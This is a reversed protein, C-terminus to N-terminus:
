NLIGLREDRSWREWSVQNEKEISCWSWWNVDCSSLYLNCIYRWLTERLCIEWIIEHTVTVITEKTLLSSIFFNIHTQKEEQRHNFHLFFHKWTIETYESAGRVEALSDIEILETSHMQIIHSIALLYKRFIQSNSVCLRSSNQSKQIPPCSPILDIRPHSKLPVFGRTIETERQSTQEFVM